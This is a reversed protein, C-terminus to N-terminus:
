PQNKRASTKTLGPLMGLVWPTGRQPCSATDEMKQQSGTPLNPADGVSTVQVQPQMNAGIPHPPLQSKGPVPFPNEKPANPTPKSGIQSAEPIHTTPLNQHNPPVSWFWDEGLVRKVVGLGLAAALGAACKVCILELGVGFGGLTLM